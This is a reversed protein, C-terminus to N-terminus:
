YKVIIRGHTKRALMDQFTKPLDDLTIERQVIDQLKKPKLDTALRKWINKRVPMTCNNSSIGLVSVGRLIFPMVTTHLEAGGALGVSAINGWLNTHRCLGALLEGGVNDVAGGWRVGELPRKGFELQEPTVVQHAGLSKLYGSLSPKGSVAIVEYGLASFMSVAFCGVGGTAGTVVIPGMQSTQGNVEMRHVCLAATFGATGYIMAEVLSLGTPLSIVKEAPVRVVKSYGGDFKEGFECGTVLVLDGAKFRSDSSSEVVGSVDIGAVIPFRKFIGPTGVAGLADKYNVSSYASRIIVEGSNLDDLTINEVLCIIKDGQQHARYAKFREKAMM